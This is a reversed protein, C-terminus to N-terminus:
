SLGMIRHIEKTLDYDTKMIREVITFHDADSIVKLSVDCSALRLTDYLLQSQRIFEESDYKAFAILISRRKSYKIIQSSILQPSIKAASEETMKLPDNVYTNILPRLDYIGSVLIAGKLLDPNVGEANWDISLMMASLHAGASHGCIYVGSFNRSAADKLVYIVGAKIEDIMQEMTGKPAITYGISYLVGHKNTISPAIFSSYELGLLQWYGGHVYIIAPSGETSNKRGFIDLRHSESEGLKIGLECDITTRALESAEKLIKLHDKIVEDPQRKSWKSSSYQKALEELNFNRWKEASTDM